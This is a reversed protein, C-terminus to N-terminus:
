LTPEEAASTPVQREPAADGSPEPPPEVPPAAAPVEPASRGARWAAQTLAGLGYLCVFFWVIFGIGPLVAAARLIGFGAFFAGIRAGMSTGRVMVRGLILSSAVYGLPALVSFASAIGLGLPIGILTFLLLVGVLPGVIGVLAGWGLTPWFRRGAAATADAARPFLLVFLLGLIAISVTVAVWLLILFAVVFGAFLNSVNLKKVDGRVTGPAVNPERRSRVDGKVQAGDRTTVRGDLAVVDGGVRGSIVVNGHVVFVDGTVKGSIDVRGNGVLVDDDVTGDITAPGDISVVPGNVVEGESVIVGGSVGIRRDTRLAGGRTAAGASSVLVGSAFLALAILALLRRRVRDEQHDVGVRAREM